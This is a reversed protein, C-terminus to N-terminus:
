KIQEFFHMFDKELDKALSIAGYSNLHSANYYMLTDKYFPASQFIKSKSLDYFYVNPYKSALKILASKNNEYSILKYKKDSKKIFDRNIKVPDHDLSPFTNVVILKQDPRLSQALKELSQYISLPEVFTVGNIIIIKNKSISEKTLKVLNQSDIYFNLGNPDIEEKKIGELAPFGDSTITSFSFDNNKGIHDLFPKITLAHSDGILLIKNNKSRKDGFVEINKQNHSRLGFTPSTYAEPIKNLDSIKPLFLILLAVSTSSVILFKIFVLNSKKKFYNEIFYYSLWSLIFTSFCIFIIEYSSLLYDDNFYRILAIIPWHWLYLSYSLEGFFVAIKKSFFNSIINDDIVLLNAAAITPILATAGPFFSNENILFASLILITFSSIAFLNNYIKNFNLKEKFALAYFGGILFEPIRFALSFYASSKNNELFIITSSYITSVIIILLIIKLLYKKPSLIIILPLIFYFQMEVALSWTHLFPNESLQAGFYSDGRAFLLNSVFLISSGGSKQLTWIDRNLYIFLGFFLTIFIFIVYAPFIRKLRKLYFDYYSFTNRNKQDVIISTMLFGSIVFFIDVGIFGGPLWSTNLHFIFVLFFALARIGQIDKRFQM